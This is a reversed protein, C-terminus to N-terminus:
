GSSRPPSDGTQPACSLVRTLSSRGLRLRRCSGIVYQDVLRLESRYDITVRATVYQWVEGEDLDLVSQFWADLVEEAYTQYVTQNVHGLPDLDRWRIGIRKTEM